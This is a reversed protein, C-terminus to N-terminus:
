GKKQSLTEFLLQLAASCFSEKNSLRDGTFLFKRVLVTDKTALAIYVLGVPKDKTGGTPGAIGTTALGYDVSPRKDPSGQAMAAAVEKSVAGHNKLLTRQLRWTTENERTNSYTVVGRDFYESSGSINTLIHALLGGTCSEATAVTVQHKKLEDSVKNVLNTDVLSCV